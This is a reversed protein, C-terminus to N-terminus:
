AGTDDDPEERMSLLIMRTTNTNLHLDMLAQATEASTTALISKEIREVDTAAEARRRIDGLLKAAKEVPLRELLARAKVFANGDITQLGDGSVINTEGPLSLKVAHPTITAKSGLLVVTPVSIQRVAKALVAGRTYTGPRHHMLWNSPAEPLINSYLDAREESIIAVSGEAFRTGKMTALQKGKKKGAQLVKLEAASFGAQWEPNGLLIQLSTTSVMMDALGEFGSKDTGSRINKVKIAVRERESLCHAYTKALARTIRETPDDVKEANLVLAFRDLLQMADM